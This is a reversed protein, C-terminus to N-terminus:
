FDFFIENNFEFALKLEHFRFPNENGENEFGDFFEEFSEVARSPGACREVVYDYV